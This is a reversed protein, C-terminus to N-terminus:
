DGQLLYGLGLEGAISKIEDGSAYGEEAVDPELLMLAGSGAEASQKLSIVTSADGSIPSYGFIVGQGSLLDILRHAQDAEIGVPLTILVTREANNARLQTIIADVDAGCEDINGHDPLELGYWLEDAPRHGFAGDIQGWLAVYEDWVADDNLTASLIVEYSSQFLMEMVSATQRLWQGDISAQAGQGSTHGLFDIPFRIAQIGQSKISSLKMLFENDITFDSGGANLTVGVIPGSEVVHEISAMANRASRSRLVISAMMGIQVLLVAVLGLAILVGWNHRLQKWKMDTNQESM